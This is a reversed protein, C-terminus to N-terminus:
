FYLCYSNYTDSSPRIVVASFKTKYVIQFDKTHAECDQFTELIMIKLLARQGMDVNEYRFYKTSACRLPLWSQAVLQHPTMALKVWCDGDVTEMM